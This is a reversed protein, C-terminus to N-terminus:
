ALKTKLKVIQQGHDDVTDNLRDIPEAAGAFGAHMETRVTQIDTKLETRVAQIKATLNKELSQESQSIAGSIYQKLDDMRENNM